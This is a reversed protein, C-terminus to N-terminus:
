QEELLFPLNKDPSLFIASACIQTPSPLLSAAAKYNSKCRGNNKSKVCYYTSVIESIFDNLVQLNIWMEYQQKRIKQCEFRSENRPSAHCFIYIIFQSRRLM